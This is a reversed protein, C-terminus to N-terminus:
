RKREWTTGQPGDKLEIGRKALANRIEDARAFDKAKKAAAREAVLADIEAAESDEAAAPAAEEEADLKLGLVRDFDLVLAGREAESVEGDHVMSHLIGLAAPVNLDEGVAQAFRERWKLAAESGIKADAALAAAVLPTTRKRLALRSKRASELAEFSFSLYNRYHSGLAFYRYDMPSFGRKVLSDVTLFEGTSKSMKDGDLRLFEGHMWFRSFTKGTAAESQAIENTHHVRIHDTGGCHIDLTEGLHKMAMASCEIHWGPFGVGWPSDWEMQRKVDTPSFKWLAFDTPLRKEGMSIRSGAWLNELDLRAFDGYRKFKSSDYYIGDSTRYTYGLEELRKVLAIQEPIHETARCWVTPELLNLSRFDRMFAETYFAAVEWVSKGTRKAGKEMKDEGEDADSTLHGVDTINVVHKADFGHYALSRKLLDEFIYTRLNGIHAYHYVTPGCCYIKATKGDQPVFEEKSRTATNYLTIAM